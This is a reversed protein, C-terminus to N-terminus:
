RKLVVIRTRDLGMNHLLQTLHIHHLMIWFCSHALRRVLVIMLFYAKLLFAMEVWHMQQNRYVGIVKKM